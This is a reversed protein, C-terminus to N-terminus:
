FALDSEDNHSASPAASQKGDLMQLESAIVETVYKKGGDKAEYSRTKMRGEVYVKSGKHLYTGVVAALGGYVTVNHWETEEKKNGDKDKWKHSTALTFNAVKGNQLERVEPDKGLNGILIVKNIM